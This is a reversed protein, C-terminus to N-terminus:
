PQNFSGTPTASADPRRDPASGPGLATWLERINRRNQGLDGQGVRSASRVMVTSGSDRPEILIFLDDVFRFLRTTRTVWLVAGSTDRVQWRPVSLTANIVRTRVDAVSAPYTHPQLASDAHGRQTSALNGGQGQALLARFEPESPPHTPVPVTCGGALLLLCTVVRRRVGGIQNGLGRRLISMGGTDRASHQRGPVMRHLRITDDATLEMPFGHAPEVQRIDGSSGGM